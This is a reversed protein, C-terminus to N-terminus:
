GETKVVSVTTAITPRSGAIAVEAQESEFFIVSDFVTIAVPISKSSSADGIAVKSLAIDHSIAAINDLTTCHPTRRITARPARFIFDMWMTKYLLM